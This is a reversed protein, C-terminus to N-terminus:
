MRVLDLSRHAEYNTARVYQVRFNLHHSELCPPSWRTAL